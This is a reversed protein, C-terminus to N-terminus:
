SGPMMMNKPIQLVPSYEGVYTREWWRGSERKTKADTYVYDYVVARIYQPPKDPFPNLRLLKLVPKSGQLLRILFNQFWVNHQYTNFPLFWAQWDLRPQYPSIRTPRRDVEGPKWYFQYEKWEKGDDSGQVIIEYRKVTMIAFIGYRNVIHYMQFYSLFQALDRRWFFHIYLQILQLGIFFLGAISVLGDLLLPTATPPPPTGFLYGMYTDSLCITSLAVTMYNLYSFNGTFWIFFQLGFFCIFVLFRIHENGFMLFPVLLEIIFMNLSSLQQFWMPLKQVYWAQTNPLPQTLYHYYLAKLNWWNHDNSQLKVAGAQIHFRFLLLNLSLWIILNPSPTLAFFFANITIELIFVDWGFCLFDQGSNVVSLYLAYLILLCLAPYIGLMLLISISFGSLMLTQIARDSSDIWLLTPYRWWREKGFHQKVRELHKGIPLIGEVGFLGPWQIVFAGFVIFYIFGMFRPFWEHILLYNMPDFM